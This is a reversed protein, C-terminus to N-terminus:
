YAKPDGKIMTYATRLIVQIDLWFYWNELYWIDYDVRKKMLDIERTEGRLGNVQAWGTIGPKLRHRVMYNDVQPRTELSHKVAHPRPGVVSMDGLFVNIFQPLEDLNTKRLFQGVKTIRDDNATTQNFKGNKHTTPAQHYMTRFKWMRFHKGKLGWREQIFFAPGKSDLKIALAILPFLWSGIFLLFCSSMLLDLGRKIMWWHEMELLTSRVTILPYNGFLELSYRSATFQFFGPVFRVLIGQRDAWKILEGIYNEQFQSPAIILEDIPSTHLMRTLFDLTDQLPLSQVNNYAYAKVGVVNYGFQPSKEIMKFFGDAQEREGVIVIKKQNVGKQHQHLMFKRHAYMRLLVMGGLLLPFIIVFTRSHLNNLFFLSVILVISQLLLIPLLTLIEDIFTVTRFGNYLGTAKIRIYWVVCLGSVIMLDFDHLTRKVLTDALLYSVGILSLDALLSFHKKRKGIQFSVSSPTLSTYTM